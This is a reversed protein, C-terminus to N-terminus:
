SQCIISSVSSPVLHLNSVELVIYIDPRINLKELSEAQSFSRPYGDLLWGREKADERSLRATVM